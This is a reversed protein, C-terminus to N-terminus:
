GPVTIMPSPDGADLRGELDGVRPLLDVQHLPRGSDPAVHGHEVLSGVRSQAAQMRVGLHHGHALVLHDFQHGVGFHLVHFAHGARVLHPDALPGTV